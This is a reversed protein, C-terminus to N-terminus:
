REYVLNSSLWREVDELPMEKRRAYDEIQEKTLKGVNFYTSKPHAFYLGSVSSAPTMALNDTLNIGM